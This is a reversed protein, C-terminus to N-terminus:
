NLSLTLSIHITQLAGSQHRWRLKRNVIDPPQDDLEQQGIAHSSPHEPPKCPLLKAKTAPFKGWFCLSDLSPKMTELKYDDIRLWVEMPSYAVMPAPATTALGRSPCQTATLLSVLGEVKATPYAATLVVEILELGCEVLIRVVLEGNSFLDEVLHFVIFQDPNALFRVWPKIPRRTIERHIPCLPKHLHSYELSHHCVIHRM